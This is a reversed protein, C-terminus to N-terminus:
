FSCFCCSCSGFPLPTGLAFDLGARHGRPVAGRIIHNCSSTGCVLYSTVHAHVSSLHTLVVSAFYPRAVAVFTKSSIERLVLNEHPAFLVPIWISVDVNGALQATVIIAVHLSRESTQAVADWSPAARVGDYVLIVVDHYRVALM